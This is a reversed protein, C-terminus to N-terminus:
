SLNIRGMNSTLSQSGGKTKPRAGRSSHGGGGLSPFDDGTGFKQAPEEPGPNWFNASVVNSTQQGAWFDKTVEEEGVERSQGWGNAIKSAGKVYTVEDENIYVSHGSPQSRTKPAGWATEDVWNHARTDGDWLGIDFRILEPLDVKTEDDGRQDDDEVKEDTPVHRAPTLPISFFPCIHKSIVYCWSRVQSM